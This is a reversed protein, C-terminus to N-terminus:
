RTASMPSTPFGKKTSETMASCRIPIDGMRPAPTKGEVPWALLLLALDAGDPHALIELVPVRHDEDVQGSADAGILVHLTEPHIISGTEWDELCHAATLVWQPHILTAGCFHGEIGNASQSDILAAMFPWETQTDSGGVIRPQQQGQLPMLMSVALVSLWHILHPTPRSPSFYTTIKNKM